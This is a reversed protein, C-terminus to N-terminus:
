SGVGRGPTTMMRILDFTVKFWAHRAIIAKIKNKKRKKSDVKSKACCECVKCFDECMKRTIGKYKRQLSLFLALSKAGVLRKHESAIVHPIDSFRVIEYMDAPWTATAINPKEHGSKWAFPRGDFGAVYKNHSIAEREGKTVSPDTNSVLALAIGVCVWDDQRSASCHGVLGVLEQSCKM